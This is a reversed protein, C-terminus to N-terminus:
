YAFHFSNPERLSFKVKKSNIKTMQIKFYGTKIILLLYNEINLEFYVGIMKICFNSNKLM